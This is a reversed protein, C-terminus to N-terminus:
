GSPTPSPSPHLTPTSSPSPTVATITFTKSASGTRGNLACIVTATATGAVGPTTTYTWSVRGTSSATKPKDKNVTQGNPLAVSATCQAGAATTAALSGYKASTISV